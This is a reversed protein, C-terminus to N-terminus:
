NFLLTLLRAFVFDSVSLLVATLISVAIVAATFRITEDRTPWNVHSMEARTDKIYNSFRNM